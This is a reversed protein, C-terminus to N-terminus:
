RKRSQILGNELLLNVYQSVDVRVDEYEKKYFSSIKKSIDDISNKGNCLDFIRAGIENIEFVKYGDSIVFKGEVKLLTNLLNRKLM